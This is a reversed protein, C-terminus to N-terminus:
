FQMLDKMTFVGKRTVLFEAALVAGLAFGGRGKAVHELRIDDVESTYTVRHTGPVEAERISHILLEEPASAPPLTNLYAVSRSKRALSDTISNALTLATGSPYDLKHVHHIEEISVDYQPYRDMLSALFANIRDFLYVGISFNSAYFLGSQHRECRGKVEELRDYWGTTGCVVPIGKEFCHLLNNVASGPTSFEIAVEPEKRLAQEWEDNRHTDVIGVVQHNRQCLIEHIARGMKGYGILLVKM